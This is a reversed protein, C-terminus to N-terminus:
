SLLYTFVFSKEAWIKICNDFNTTYKGFTRAEDEELNQHIASHLDLQLSRELPHHTKYYLLIDNYKVHKLLLKVLEKLLRYEPITLNLHDLNQDSALNIEDWKHAFVKINDRILREEPKNRKQRHSLILIDLINKYFTILTNNSNLTLPYDCNNFIEKFFHYQLYIKETGEHNLNLFDFVAEQFYLVEESTKTKIKKNHNKLYIIEQLVKTWNILNNLTNLQYLMNDYQGQSFAITLIRVIDKKNKIETILKPLVYEKIMNILEEHKHIDLLSSYYESFKRGKRYQSIIDYIAGPTIENLRQLKIFLEEEIKNKAKLDTWDSIKQEIKTRRKSEYDNQKKKMISHQIRIKHFEKVEKLANKLANKLKSVEREREKLFLNKINKKATQINLINIDILLRIPARFLARTKFFKRLFIHPSPRKQNICNGITQRLTRCPILIDLFENSQPSYLKKYGSFEQSSVLGSFIVFFFFILRM